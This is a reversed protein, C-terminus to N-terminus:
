NDPIQDALNTMKEANKQITSSELDERELKKRLHKTWCNLICCMVIGIFALGSPVFVSIICVKMWNMNKENKQEKTYLMYELIFYIGYTATTTFCLWIITLIVTYCELCSCKTKKPPLQASNVIIQDLSLSRNRTIILETPRKKENVLVKKNSDPEAIGEEM